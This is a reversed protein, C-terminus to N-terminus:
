LKGVESHVHGNNIVKELRKLANLLEASIVPHRFIDDETMDAGLLPVTICASDIVLASMMSLTERLAAEAHVARSSANFVVVPKNVFAECGVMWDLASKMAGAIGHAYEPSAILVADSTMIKTRLDSPYPSDVIEVDPNFLPLNGLDAYIEVVISVPAIRAVARLLTTNISATRLSGSIALIKM